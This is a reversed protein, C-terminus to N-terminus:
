RQKDSNVNLTLVLDSSPCQREDILGLSLADKEGQKGEIM